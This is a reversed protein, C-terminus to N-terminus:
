KRKGKQLAMLIGTGIAMVFMAYDVSNFRGSKWVLVDLVLAVIVGVLAVCIVVSKFM